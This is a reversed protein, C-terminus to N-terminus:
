RCAPLRRKAVVAQLRLGKAGNRMLSMVNLPGPHGAKSASPMRLYGDADKIMFKFPVGQEDSGFSRFESESNGSVWLLMFDVINAVDIHGSANNFPDPGAVLSETENWYIGDGDYVEEDNQFNDNANVAEYDAERGGFYSSWVATM